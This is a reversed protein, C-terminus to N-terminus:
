ALPLWLVAVDAASPAAHLLLGSSIMAQTRDRGSLWTGSFALSLMAAMMSSSPRPAPWNECYTCCTGGSTQAGFFATLSRAAHAFTKFSVAALSTHKFLRALWGLCFAVIITTYSDSM